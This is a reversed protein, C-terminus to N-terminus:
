GSTKGVIIHPSVRIQWDSINHYDGCKRLARSLIKYEGNEISGGRSFNGSPWWTSSPLRPSDSSFQRTPWLIDFDITFTDEITIKFTDSEQILVFEPTQIVPDIMLVGTTGPALNLATTSFKVTALEAGNSSYPLLPLGVVPGSDAKTSITSGVEHIINYTVIENERNEIRIEHTGQFHDTDNLNIVAPTISTKYTMVSLILQHASDGASIASNSRGGNASFYLAIVGAIYATPMSTGPLVVKGGESTLYASFFPVVEPKLRSDVAISKFNAGLIGVAKGGNNAVFDSDVKSGTRKASCAMSM